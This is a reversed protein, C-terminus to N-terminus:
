SAYRLHKQNASLSVSASYIAMRQHIGGERGKDRGLFCSHLSWERTILGCRQMLFAAETVKLRVQFMNPGPLPLQTKSCEHPFNASTHKTRTRELCPSLKSLAALRCFVWDNGGPLSELARWRPKPHQHLSSGPLLPFARSNKLREVWQPALCAGPVCKM